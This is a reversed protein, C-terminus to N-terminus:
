SVPGAGKMVEFITELHQRMATAAEDGQGQAICAVVKAHQECHFTTFTSVGLRRYTQEWERQWAAHRRVGTLYDLLGLLIPNGTVEALGRHFAADLQECESRTTAARGRAILHNLWAIQTPSALVAADAAVSPEITMRAQMLQLPTAGQVLIADRVPHGSPRAGLFTGQGVHRWLEGRMEMEALARRLTERSCGLIRSLEREPPLKDGVRLGSKTIHRELAETMQQTRTM